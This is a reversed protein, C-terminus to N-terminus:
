RSSLIAYNQAFKKTCIFSIGMKRKAIMVIETKEDIKSIDFKKM